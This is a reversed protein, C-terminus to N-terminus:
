KMGKMVKSIRTTHVGLIGRINDRGINAKAAELIFLDELLRIITDLKEQVQSDENGIKAIKGVGKL